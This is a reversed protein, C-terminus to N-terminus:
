CCPLCHSGSRSGGEGGYKQCQYFTKQGGRVSTVANLSLNFEIHDTPLGERRNPFILGFCRPAYPILPQWTPPNEKALISSFDGLLTNKLTKINKFSLNYNLTIM